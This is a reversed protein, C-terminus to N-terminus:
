RPLNPFDVAFIIVRERILFCLSAKKKSFTWKKKWLVRCGGRLCLCYGMVDNYRYIYYGQTSVSFHFSFLSFRIHPNEDCSYRLCVGREVVGVWSCVLSQLPLTKALSEFIFLASCVQRIHPNEDCSYRLCVGREVVGVWSCVLSQLPLTKALSEFIFLASCVQRIHANIWWSYCLCFVVVAIVYFFSLNAGIGIEWFGPTTYCTPNWPKRFEFFRLKSPTFSSKSLSRLVSIM